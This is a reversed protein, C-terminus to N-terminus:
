LREGDGCGVGEIKAYPLTILNGEHSLKCAKSALDGKQVVSIPRFNTLHDIPHDFYYESVGVVVFVELIMDQLISALKSFQFAGM